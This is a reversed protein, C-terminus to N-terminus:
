AVTTPTTPRDGALDIRRPAMPPDPAVRSVIARPIARAVGGACCTWEAVLRPGSLGVPVREHSATGTEQPRSHPEAGDDVSAAKLKAPNDIEFKGDAMRVLFKLFVSQSIDGSDAARCLHGNALRTRIWRRLEPEVLRFLETVNEPDWNGVSALFVQFEADDM